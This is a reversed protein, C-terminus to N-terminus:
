QTASQSLGKIKSLLGELDVAALFDRWNLQKTAKRSAESIVSQLITTALRIFVNSHTSEATARHRTKDQPKLVLAGSVDTANGHRLRKTPLSEHCAMSSQLADLKKLIERHSDRENRTLALLQEEITEAHSDLSRTRKRSM